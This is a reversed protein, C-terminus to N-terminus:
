ALFRIAVALHPRHCVHSRNHNSLGTPWLYQPNFRHRYGHRFVAFDQDAYLGAM